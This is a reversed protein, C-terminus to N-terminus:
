GTGSSSVDKKEGKRKRPVIRRRAALQGSQIRWTVGNQISSFGTRDCCTIFLQGPALGSLFYDRRTKDLESLVDDLLIVPQEGTVERIVRCEALKLTLACSRQQGQSGFARASVGDVRLDIDDRHPGVTTYGNKLDERRSKELAERIVDEGEREGLEGWPGPISCQYAMSFAERGGSIMGYIERGFPELRALYRCRANIISYSLKAFSRDWVELLGEDMGPHRSMDYLLSNRQFLARSLDAMTKQYRPMVQTIAGDLFARRQSPGDRVLSLESPSFVVAFFRGTLEGVGLPLDNLSATRKGGEILLRVEQERGGGYFSAIIEGRKQGFRVFDSERTQRFSKQGTLLYLAEILNTKGQANNGYIVNVGDGPELDMEPINRFNRISLHTIIM